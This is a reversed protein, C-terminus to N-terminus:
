DETTRLTRANLPQVPRSNGGHFLEVFEEVQFSSVSQTDQSVYWNVGETCPPTTLSGSFRFYESTKKGGLVDNPDISHGSENTGVTHPSAELIEQLTSNSDGEEFFIGVVSLAGDDNIHVFHAELPFHEGNLTNESPSHFHFQLLRQKGLETKTYSRADTNIQVTHGNNIVNLPVSNFKHKLKELDDDEVSSSLDLDIPSQETGTGCTEYGHIDGWVSPDDYSWSEANAGFSLMVAIAATAFKYTNKM